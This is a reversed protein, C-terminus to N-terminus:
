ELDEIDYKKLNACKETNKKRHKTKQMLDGVENSHSGVEIMENEIDRGIEDVVEETM